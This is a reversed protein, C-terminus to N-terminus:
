KEPLLQYLPVIKASSKSSATKLSKSFFFISNNLLRRLYYEMGRVCVLLVLPRNRTGPNGTESAPCPVDGQGVPEIMRLTFLM